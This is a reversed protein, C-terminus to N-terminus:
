GLEQIVSEFVKEGANRANYGTLILKHSIVEGDKVVATKATISGVDIGITIM